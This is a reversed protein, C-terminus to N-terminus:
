RSRPELLDQTIWWYRGDHVAAFGAIAFGPDLLITRHEDSAMLQRHADAISANYAVNEGRGKADLRERQEDSFYADNHRLEGTDAMEQSHSRAVDTVDERATMISLGLERREENALRLLESAAEAGDPEAAQARTTSTTSASTTSTSTSSTSTTSPATGGEGAADCRVLLPVEVDVPACASAPAGLWVVAAVTTAGVTALARRRASGPLDM